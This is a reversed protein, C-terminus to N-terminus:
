STKTGNYYLNGSSSSEGDDSLSWTITGGADGTIYYQRDVVTRDSYVIDYTFAVSTGPQSIAYSDQPLLYCELGNSSSNTGGTANSYAATTTKYMLYWDMYTSPSNPQTIKIDTTKFLQTPAVGESNRDIKM